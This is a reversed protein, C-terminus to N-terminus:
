AQKYNEEIQMNLQAIKDKFYKKKLKEVSTTKSKERERQKEEKHSLNRM